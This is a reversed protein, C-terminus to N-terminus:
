PRRYTVMGQVMVQQVHSTYEFPDGDFAVVDADKGKSLSGVRDSQKKADSFM